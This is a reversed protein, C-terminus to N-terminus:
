VPTLDVCQKDYDYRVGWQAVRRGEIAYEWPIEKDEKLWNTLKSLNEETIADNKVELGSIGDRIIKDGEVM